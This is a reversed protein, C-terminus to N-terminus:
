IVEQDLNKALLFPMADDFDYQQNLEYPIRLKLKIRVIYKLKYKESLAKFSAHIVSHSTSIM